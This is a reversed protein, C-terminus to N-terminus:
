HPEISTQVGKKRAEEAIYKYFDEEKRAKRADMARVGKVGGWIGLGGAVALGALTAILQPNMINAGKELLISLAEPNMLDIGAKLLQATFKM